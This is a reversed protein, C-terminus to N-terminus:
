ESTTIEVCMLHTETDRELVDMVGDIHFTRSGFVVRYTEDLTLGSRIRVRHSRRGEVKAADIREESRLPEIAAPVSSHATAWTRATDGETDITETASQIDIRHRLRGAGGKVRM